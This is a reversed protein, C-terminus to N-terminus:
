EPLGLLRAGEALKEGLRRGWFHLSFVRVQFTPELALGRGVVAKAEEERGALALAVAQFFYGTSYNANIQGIRAFSLAADDYRSEHVAVEGLALHAEFALPDFPSLRLARNALSTATAGHAAMGHAQAALYLTTASSPNLSLARDIAAFATEQEDSLLNMVFGAVGLATADDTKSAIAARAHGLAAARDTEGFGTRMYCLEHCWALHARAAAYDPEL